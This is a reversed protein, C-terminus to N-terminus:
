GRQAFIRCIGIARLEKTWGCLTRRRRDVGDSMLGFATRRSAMSNGSCLIDTRRGMCRLASMSITNVCDRGAEGLAAVHANQSCHDLLALIAAADREVAHGTLDGFNQEQDALQRCVIFDLATGRLFRGQNSLGTTQRSPLHARSFRRAFARERLSQPVPAPPLRQRDRRIPRPRRPRSREAKIL